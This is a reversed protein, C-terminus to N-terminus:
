KMTILLLPSWSECCLAPLLIRKYLSKHRIAIAKLCDRGSQFFDTDKLFFQSQNNIFELNSDWDFESGWEHVKTNM